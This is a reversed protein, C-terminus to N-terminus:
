LWLSSDEKGLFLSIQVIVFVVVIFILALSGDHGIYHGISSKMNGAYYIAEYIGILAVEALCTIVACKLNDKVTKINWVSAMCGYVFIATIAFMLSKYSSFRDFGPMYHNLSNMLLFLLLVILSIALGLQFINKEKRNGKKLRLLKIGGIELIESSLPLFRNNQAAFFIETGCSNATKLLPELKDSDISDMCFVVDDVQDTKIVSEIAGFDGKCSIGESPIKDFMNFGCEGSLSGCTSIAFDNLENIFSQEKEAISKSNKSENELLFGTLHFGYNPYCILSRAYEIAAKGEGVLLVNIKKKGKKLKHGLRYRLLINKVILLFSSMIWFIVLAMRSFYIANAVYFFSLLALCGILQILVLRFYTGDDTRFRYKDDEKNLLQLATAMLLSYIMATLIYPASLANIGPESEMINYRVVVAIVYAVILTLFDTLYLIVGFISRINHSSDGYSKNVNSNNGKKM